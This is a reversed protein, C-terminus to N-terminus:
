VMDETYSKLREKRCAIRFDITNKFKKVNDKSTLHIFWVPNYGERHGRILCKNPIGTVTLFHSVFMMSLKHTMSIGVITQGTNGRSVWGESDYLGHVFGLQFERSQSYINHYLGQLISGLLRDKKKLVYLEQTECIRGMINHTGKPIVAMGMKYETVKEFTHKFLNIYGMDTNYFRIDRKCICGDGKLSGLIYGLEYTGSWKGINVLLIRDKLKNKADLSLRAKDLHFKRLKNIHEKSYRINYAEAIGLIRRFSVGMKTAIDRYRVGDFVYQRLQSLDSDLKDETTVYRYAM